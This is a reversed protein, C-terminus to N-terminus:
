KSFVFSKLAKQISNYKFSFDEIDVLKKPVVYQSEFLLIHMEGLVLKMFFKPIYFNIIKKNSAKSIANIMEKQSVVNPSVANFVGCLQKQQITIFIQALDHIHIWSQQQKGNGFIIGIRFKSLKLLPQLAGGKDSLVLGIRVQATKINLNNFKQTAHEWKKVVEALFNNGFDKSNEDYINDFSNKYIGIASASVINKVNHNTKELFNFLLETSKIRSQLIEEKYTNTWRKAITAGTLHIISEVNKFANEDIENNQINWYFGKLKKTNKLKNKSTSLYHVTYNNQLYMQTIYSGVLGTAGIILVTKM